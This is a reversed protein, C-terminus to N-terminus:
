QVHQELLPSRFSGHASLIRTVMNWLARALWVVNVTLLCLGLSPQWLLLLTLLAYAAAQCYGPNHSGSPQQEYRTVREYWRQCRCQTQQM